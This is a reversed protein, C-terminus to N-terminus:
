FKEHGPHPCSVQGTSPNYLYPEKGMPCKYFAGGIKTEELTPPFTDDGSSTQAIQLAARLQGLNSQCVTDQAEAKVLGPITTGRGDARPSKPKEGSFVGSGYMLGVALIAMIAITMLTAVLSFAGLRKTKM